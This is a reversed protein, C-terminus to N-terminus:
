FDRDEQPLDAAVATVAEHQTDNLSIMLGRFTIL